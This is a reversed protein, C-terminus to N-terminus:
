IKYNTAHVKVGNQTLLNERRIKNAFKKSFNKKCFFIKQHDNQPYRNHLIFKKKSIGLFFKPRAKFFITRSTEQIPEPRKENFCINQCMSKMTLLMCGSVM